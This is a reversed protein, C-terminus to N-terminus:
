TSKRRLPLLATAGLAVLVLPLSGPEPVNNAPPTTATAGNLGSTSLIGNTNCNGSNILNSSMTVNGGGALSGDLARGCVINANALMTISTQALFNGVMSAGVNLTISSVADWYVSAGADANVLSVRSDTGMIISSTALFVWQPNVYGSGDLILTKGVGLNYAPATLSYVGPALTMGSLDGFTATIGKGVRMAELQSQAAMLELHTTTSLADGQHIASNGSAFGPNIGYGAVNGPGTHQMAGFFGTIGSATTNTTGLSNSLDTRVLALSGHPGYETPTNTVGGVGAFVSFGALNAGLVPTTAAIAVPAYLLAALMTLSLNLNKM